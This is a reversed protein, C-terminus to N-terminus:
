FVKDELLKDIDLLQEASKEIENLKILVEARRIMCHHSQPSLSLARDVDELAAELDGAFSRMNGLSARMELSQVLTDVITQKDEECQLHSLVSDCIENSRSFLSYGLVPMHIDVLRTGAIINASALKVCDRLAQKRTEASSASYFNSV